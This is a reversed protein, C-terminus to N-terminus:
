WVGERLNTRFVKSPFPPSKLPKKKIFHLHMLIVDREHDVGQFTKPLLCPFPHLTEFAIQVSTSEM